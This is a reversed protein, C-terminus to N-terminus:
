LSLFFVWRFSGGANLITLSYARPPLESFPPLTQIFINKRDLFSLVERKLLGFLQHCVVKFKIKFRPFQIDLLYFSSLALPSPPEIYRNKIEQTGM